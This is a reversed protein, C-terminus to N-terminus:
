KKGGNQMAVARILNYKLVKADGNLAKAVTQRCVGHERAIKTMVGKKVLILEKNM